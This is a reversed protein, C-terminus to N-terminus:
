FFVQELHFDLNASIFGVGATSAVISYCTMAIVPIKLMKFMSFGGRVFPVEGDNQPDQQTNGNSPHEKEKSGPEPFFFYTVVASVFLFGGMSLFPLSYGGLQM